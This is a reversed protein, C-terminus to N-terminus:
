FGPVVGGAQEEQPSGLGGAPGAGLLAGEGGSMGGPGGMGGLVEQAHVFNFSALWQQLLPKINLGLPVFQAATMVRAQWVQEEVADNPLATSTPEVLFKMGTPLDIGRVSPGGDPVEIEKDGWRAVLWSVQTIAETVFEEYDGREGAKRADAGAGIMAAETAFKAGILGGREDQSIGTLISMDRIAENYSSYLEPQITQRQTPQLYRTMDEGPPVNEVGIVTRDQAVEIDAMNDATLRALNALYITGDSRRRAALQSRALDIEQQQTEMIEIDGIGYASDGDPINVLRVYPFYAVHDPDVPYDIGPRDGAWMLRDPLEETWEVRAGVDWLYLVYFTVARLDDDEPGYTVANRYQEPFHTEGKLDAAIHRYKPMERLYKLPRVVKEGMWRGRQIDEPADPDFLINVPDVRRVVPHDRLVVPDDGSKAGESAHEYSRLRTQFRWQTAVVGTGTVKADLFARATAKTAKIEGWTYELVRRWARAGEGEPLVRIAPPSSALQAQKLLVNRQSYNVVVRDREDVAALPMAPGYHEGRFWRWMVEPRRARLYKDERYRESVTIRDRISRMGEADFNM